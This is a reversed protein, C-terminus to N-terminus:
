YRKRWLLDVGNYGRDGVVGEVMVRRSLWYQIEGQNSNEDPRADIRRQYALFLSRTLWTGVTVAASESANAAEYRLVDLDIPLAGRVYGGIKNAIISAGVDTAQDRVSGSEPPGNPEGGLLFGLLQGQSYTGPNSTMQLEPESLRGRVQTVTTVEPFDHTIRVDVIPDTSGDFRVSAREVEYRRGFLELLGREAEVTGVIGVSEADASVTLKGKVLGRVEPSEIFLTYIRVRAILGPATPTAKDEAPTTLPKGTTAFVMDSPAGVPKLPDSRGKPVVILGKRVAVDAKWLTGERELKVDIDADIVPEVGGIPSVGRLIIKAEGSTPRARVLAVAGTLKVDGAGIRGVVAVKLERESAVVDIDARRMTGIQPAIPMRGDRIHLKGVLRATGPDLGRVTMEADLRGAASGVPGPAFVLLPVLDFARASITVTGQDLAEPSATAVVQLSGDRQYGDIRVNATTGDWSANVTVNEIRKVPRAYVRSPAQLHTGVLKATMRPDRVTGTVEVKGFVTGGTMQTRGFVRLMVAAPTPPVSGTIALPATLAARPDTRLQDLGVPVRGRLDFLTVGGAKIAVTLNAAQDDIAIAAHANVPQALPGGRLEQVDVAVQASRMAASIEAALSARGRLPTTFGFRDLLGPEIMVDEVRINAGKMADPGLAQWAALDFLHDPIAFRATARFRGLGEVAGTLTPMLEDPGSQVMQLDADIPGIGRLEPSVLDRVKVTGGTSTPSLHLDGDLRGSLRGKQGALEAVRALDIGELSLRGTRIVERHLHTWHAVNTIDKPADVDLVFSASGLRLASIKGDVLLQDARASIRTDVDFTLASPDASLGKASLDVAGAWRNNTRSVDVHADVTGRFGTSFNDLTLNTADVKAILDGAARGARVFSGAIALKGSASASRLDRLVIKDPDIVLRGTTGRWTGANAARIHHRQVDVTITDGVGPPKVLADLDFLWPNQQPRSRVAVQIMGDPRNAATLELRGLQMRDRVLDVLTLEVRGIPQNPLQRADIALDLSGVSVGEARLRRGQVRGVVALSTTPALPGRATANISLTGHVPAKGGTAKAPSSTSAIVQSRELTIADGVKTLEASVAARLSPASLGIVTRADAGGTSFAIAAHAGPVAALDGWATVVGSAVPLQGPEGPRVDFMVVGGAHGDLKGQSLQALDASGSALVGLAHLDDLDASVMARIPTAGVQGIVSLQTWPPVSTATATLAIDAPLTIAPALQAVAAAPARVTVMGDIVPSRGEAAVIRIAQGAITVGGVLATLSPISTVGEHIQVVADVGVGVARERWAGRLSLNAALPRNVPMHAGGYITIDDFNFWGEDTGTDVAVHGRQVVISPIDISWGSKEGSSRIMKSVQLEGSADRRLVVDVDEAVLSDFRAEKSALPILGLELTLKGVTIAPEGDPGNLVLDRLVLEGLPSGEIAGIDAGGIFTKDLQAEVQSRILDRGYDTHITILVAAVAFVIIAAFGLLVRKFRRMAM